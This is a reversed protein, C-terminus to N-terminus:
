AVSLIFVDFSIDCAPRCIARSASRRLPPLLVGWVLAMAADLLSACSPIAAAACPLLVSVGPLCVSALVVVVAVAVVIAVSSSLWLLILVRNVIFDRLRAFPGSSSSPAVFFAPTPEGGFSPTPRLAGRDIKRACLVGLVVGGASFLFCFPAVDVGLLSPKRGLLEALFSLCVLLM